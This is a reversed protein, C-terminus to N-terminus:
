KKAIMRKFETDWKGTLDFALGTVGGVQDDIARVQKPTCTRLIIIITEQAIDNTRGDALFKVELKKSNFSEDQWYIPGCHRIFKKCDSGWLKNWIRRWGVHDVTEKVQSNNTTLLDLVMQNEEGITAGDLVDKLLKQRQPLSLVPLAKKDKAVKWYDVANDDTDHGGIGGLEGTAAGPAYNIIERFVEVVQEPSAKLKNLVGEKIAIIKDGKLPPDPDLESGLTDAKENAFHALAQKMRNDKFLEEVTEVQWNLTKNTQRADNDPLAKPWLQEACFLGDALKLSEIVKAEDSEGAKGAAYANQIDKLSAKVGAEAKKATDVGQVLDRNHEDLVQGDGVLNVLENGVTVTVGEENDMDHVAGSIADGFTLAPIGKKEIMENITAQSKEWLVQVTLPAAVSNDNMHKAINEAMWLKLNHWFMPVRPNWWESISARPTRIHGSAYADTLFHSAFAEYLMANDLSSGEQGAKVAEAIASLHNERYSGANNITITKGNQDLIPKGDEDRKRKNAKQEFSLTGDGADPNTFHTVNSGALKYYRGTAAKVVDKGYDEDKKTKHIKVSLVYKIEDMTNAQNKGDGPKEALQKIEDVSGFFDGAMATIDGFTVELQNPEKGLKIKKPNGKNDATGQDGMEKHENSEFRQITGTQQVVHTLEHAILEQGGQSSPDYAGQRFFVDQGTAFARAGISQNLQDSQSDTHINVGSFDAGFSEEMPGRINDSLPQGSGRSQAISSELKETPQHQLTLEPKMQLSEEDGEGQLAERQVTSELKAQLPNEEEEKPLAERQVSGQSAPSNIQKVVQAATADAEQEYKDGVEGITLKTQIAQAPTSQSFDVMHDGLREANKRSIEMEELSLRQPKAQVTDPLSNL